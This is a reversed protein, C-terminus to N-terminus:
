IGTKKKKLVPKKEAEPNEKSKAKIERKKKKEPGM